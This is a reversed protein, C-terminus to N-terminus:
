PTTRERGSAPAPQAPDHIRGDVLVEDLARTIHSFARAVDLREDQTLRDLLQRLQTVNLDHFREALEVAAPTPTVVVQRRDAPDEHRAVLGQEVLRDVHGSVTSLSVGLRAALRSMPLRHTSVLILLIKAQPMTIDIGLFDPMHFGEIRKRVEEFVELVHETSGPAPAPPPDPVSQRPM